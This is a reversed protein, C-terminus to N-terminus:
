KEMVALLADFTASSTSGSRCLFFLGADDPVAALVTDSAGGVSMNAGCGEAVYKLATIGYNGATGTTAHQVSQISQISEGGSGIIRIVRSAIVSAPISVTTTRSGTGAGNTYTITATVASSGTSSYWELYWEVDSYDAAGLRAAATGVVTVGFSQTGTATGSYGGVHALRDCLIYNKSAAGIVVFSILRNTGVSADSFGFCGLTTSDCAAGTTSPTAGVAPYGVAKWLSYVFNTTTTLSAQSVFLTKQVGALGSIYDAINALAM